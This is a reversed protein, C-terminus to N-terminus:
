ITVTAGPAPTELRDGLGAAAFAERLREPGQSFHAWGEQHVAVVTRAGLLRTAAVAEDAGLTLLAGGFRGELRAGGAHLVAIELEGVRDVIGAVVDVSANDRSVYVSPLGDVQLVFGIVPGTLHDTGDPGHQAPVALVSAAGVATPEWPELGTAAVELRGAGAATTLVRRARGLYARGAADLNDAHHDHSLLVVDVDGIEDEGLAPGVLKHLAPADAREYHGPPDFSPDTLWRLGAYEILATPGGVLTATFAHPVM